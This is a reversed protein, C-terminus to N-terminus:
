HVFFLDHHAFDIKRAHIFKSRMPREQAVPADVGVGSDLSTQEISALSVRDARGQSGDTKFTAALSSCACVARWSEAGVGQTLCGRGAARGVEM